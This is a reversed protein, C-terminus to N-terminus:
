VGARRLVRRAREVIPADLMEGDLAVAGLGRTVGSEFAEVVRRAHAVEAESPSFIENVIPIQDPHICQRGSFGLQRGLLADRRLGAADTLDAWIGDIAPLGAATAAVVIASRAYLLEAAAGERRAPLGLDAAFDESGFVLGALRPARAIRPADLLGAASEISALVRVSGVALSAARERETLSEDLLALEEARTVKPVLVGDIGPRIAAALDREAADSASRGIRVFRRPGAGRRELAAAIVRRASEKEAAPVGDELDLLAVDPSTALGGALVRAVMPERHGPTYLLSRVPADM